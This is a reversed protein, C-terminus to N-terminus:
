LSWNPLSLTQTKAPYCDWVNTKLCEAYTALAERYIARGADLALKDLVYLAIGYPPEKEVALIVFGVGENGTAARVGDSYFAAQRHHQYRASARQFDQFSASECTKLDVRLDGRLYDIRAKCDVGTAIDKWLVSQEPRGGSLLASATPHSYVSEIMREIRQFDTFPLMIKGAHEKGLAALAEKGEKTRGDIGDPRCFYRAYFKQPELIGFHAATGIIQAPTPEPKENRYAILHAPSRLLYGLETNRIAPHANYQAETMEVIGTLNTKM